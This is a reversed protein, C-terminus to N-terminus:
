QKKHDNLMNVAVPKQKIKMEGEPKTPDGLSFESKYAIQM